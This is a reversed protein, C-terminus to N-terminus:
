IMGRKIILIFNNVIDGKVNSNHVWVSFSNYANKMINANVSWKLKCYSISCVFIHHIIQESFHMVHCVINNLSSSFHSQFSGPLHLAPTQASAHHESQKCKASEMIKQVKVSSFSLYTFIDYRQRSFYTRCFQFKM